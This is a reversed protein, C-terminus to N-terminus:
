SDFGPEEHEGDDENTTNPALMYPAMLTANTTTTGIIATRPTKRKM